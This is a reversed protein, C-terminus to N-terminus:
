YQTSAETANYGCLTKGLLEPVLMLNGEYRATSM